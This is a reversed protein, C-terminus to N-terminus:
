MFREFLHRAYTVPMAELSQLDKSKNILKGGIWWEQGADILYQYTLLLDGNIRRQELVETEDARVTQKGAVEELHDQKLDYATANEELAALCKQLKTIKLQWLPTGKLSHFYNSLRKVNGKCSSRKSKITRVNNFRALLEELADMSMLLQHLCHIWSLEIYLEISLHNLLRAAIFLLCVSRETQM